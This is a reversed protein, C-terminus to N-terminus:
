CVGSVVWHRRRCRCPEFCTGLEDPSTETNRHNCTEPPSVTLAPELFSYDDETFDVTITAIDKLTGNCLGRFQIFGDPPTNPCQAFIDYLQALSALVFISCCRFILYAARDPLAAVEESRKVLLDNLDTLQPLVERFGKLWDGVPCAPFLTLCPGITVPLSSSVPCTIRESPSTRKMLSYYLAYDFFRRCRMGYVLILLSTSHTLPIRPWLLFTYGVPLESTFQDCLYSSGPIDKGNLLRYQLPMFILQVLTAVREQVSELYESPPDLIASQNPSDSSNSFSRDVMRIDNRKAIGIAREIYREAPIYTYTYFCASAMFCLVQLLSFPDDAEKITLVIELCLQM